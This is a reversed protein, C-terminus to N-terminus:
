EQVLYGSLRMSVFTNDGIVLHDVLQLGITRAAIELARTTAVDQPSPTPDGGPHNHALLIASAGARVAPRLVDAPRLALSAQGGQALLAEGLLRMSGDLMLELLQENSADIRQRLYDYARQPEDLSIRRPRLSGEARRGLELAAAVQAARAPGIGRERQLAAHGRRRIGQIGGDQLLRAALSLVHDGATGAGLVIALLEYDSLARPGERLLRERPRTEAPLDRLPM